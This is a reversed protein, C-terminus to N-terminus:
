HPDGDSKEEVVTTVGKGELMRLLTLRLVENGNALLRAIAHSTRELDSTFSLACSLTTDEFVILTATALTKGKGAVAAATGVEEMIKLKDPTNAHFGEPIEESM